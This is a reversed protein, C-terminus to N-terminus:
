ACLVCLLACGWNHSLEIAWILALSSLFLGFFRIGSFVNFTQFIRDLIRVGACLMESKRQMFLLM